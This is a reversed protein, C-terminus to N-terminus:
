KKPHGIGQSLAARRVARDLELAITDLETPFNPHQSTALAAVVREIRSACESVDNFGFMAASGSIRHAAHAVDPLTEGRGARLEEIDRHLGKLEQLTRAIYRRGIAQLEGHVKANM